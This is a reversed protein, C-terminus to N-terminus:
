NKNLKNILYNTILIILSVVLVWFLQYYKFTLGMFNYVFNINKQSGFFLSVVLLILITILSLKIAKKNKSNLYKLGWLSLPITFLHQSTIIRSTIPTQNFFFYEIGFISQKTFIFQLFDLTWFILPFTLINLQSQILDKNEIIFGVGLLILAPHCFWILISTSKIIFISNLIAGIGFILFIMGIIKTIIESRKM